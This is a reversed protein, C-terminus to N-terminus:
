QQDPWRSCMRWRTSQAWPLMVLKIIPNFASQFSGCHTSPLCERQSPGVCRLLILPLTQTDSQRVRESKEREDARDHERTHKHTHKNQPSRIRKKSPGERPFLTHLPAPRVGLLSYHQLQAFSQAKIDMNVSFLQVTHPQFNLLNLIRVLIILLIHLFFLTSLIDIYPTCIHKSFNAHQVALGLGDQKTGRSTTTQHAEMTEAPIHVTLKM